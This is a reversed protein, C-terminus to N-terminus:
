RIIGGENIVGEYDRLEIVSDPITDFSYRDYIEALEDDSLTYPAEYKRNQYSLAFFAAIVVALVIAAIAIGRKMAKPNRVKGIAKGSLPFSEQTYEGTEDNFYIRHDYEIGDTDTVILKKLYLGSQPDFHYGEPAQYVAM